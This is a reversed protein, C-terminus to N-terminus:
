HVSGVTLLVIGQAWRNQATYSHFTIASLLCVAHTSKNKERSKVIAAKLEQSSKKEGQIWINCNMVLHLNPGSSLADYGCDLASLASPDMSGAQRNNRSWQSEISKLLEPGVNLIPKGM